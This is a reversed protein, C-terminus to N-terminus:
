ILLLWEYHGELATNTVIFSIIIAQKPELVLFSQSRQINVAKTSDRTYIAVKGLVRWSEKM